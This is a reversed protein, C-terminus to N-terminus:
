PLVFFFTAGEGPASQAWIRGGHREIIRHVTALGVGTGEFESPSHLRQFAGFLRHAESMDFGAGNDKVFFARGGDIEAAGVEVRAHAVRSSYKWANAILNELAVRLLGEDGLCRLDPAVAVEVEREPSARQLSALADTCLASLDVDSSAVEGHTVRSLTLLDSILRAMRVSSRSITEIMTLASEPIEVRKRLMRDCTLQITTLPARLDHSVMSNFADLDRMSNEITRTREAVRQELGLNLLRVEEEAEKRDTIDQCVGVLKRLRGQEDLVPHAWTHLYRMSGDPRFVREDHSYPVHEHFVKNTADIVRARDDPHVFTLYQEYSPTYTEPSRGYIRYLEASWKAHPESIDWEWTGLHAAGQTDVMLQESLRLRAETRKLETIEMSVCLYGVVAGDEVLPSLTSAFWSRATRSATDEWELRQANGDLVALVCAQARERVDM